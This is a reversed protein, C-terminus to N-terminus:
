GLPFACRGGVWDDRGEECAGRVAVNGLGIGWGGGAGEIMAFVSPGTDPEVGTSSLLGRDIAGGELGDAGGAVTSTIGPGWAEVEFRLIRALATRGNLGGLDSSGTMECGGAGACPRDMRETDVEVVVAVGFGSGFCGDRSDRRVGVVEAEVEVGMIVFLRERASSKAGLVGEFM